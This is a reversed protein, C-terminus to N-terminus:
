EAILKEEKYPVWKGNEKEEIILNKTNLSQEVTEEIQKEVGLKKSVELKHWNKFEKTEIMRRFALVRNKGQDRTDQSVGVAGSARHICRVKSNVKGVNQGGNGSSRMYQWECDDRTVSFLLEKDM